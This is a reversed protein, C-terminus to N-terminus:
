KSLAEALQRNLSLLEQFSKLKELQDTFEQVTEVYRERLEKFQTIFAQATKIDGQVQEILLNIVRDVEKRERVLQEAYEALRMSQDFQEKVALRM